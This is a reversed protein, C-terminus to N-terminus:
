NDLNERALESAKYVGEEGDDFQVSLDGDAHKDAVFGTWCSGSNDDHRCAPIVFVRDGVIHDISMSTERSTDEHRRESWRPGVTVDAELHRRAIDVREPGSDSFFEGLPDEGNHDIVWRYYSQWREKRQAIELDHDLTGHAYEDVFSWDGDEDVSWETEYLTGDADLRLGGVTWTQHWANCDDCWSVDADGCDVDDPQYEWENGERLALIAEEPLYLDALQEDTATKLNM